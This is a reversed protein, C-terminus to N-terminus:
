IVSAARNPYGSVASARSCCVSGLTRCRLGSGNAMAASRQELALRTSKAASMKRRTCRRLTLGLTSSAAARMSTNELSPSSMCLRMTSWYRKSWPMRGLVYTIEPSSKAQARAPCTLAASSSWSTAELAPSSGLLRCWMPTHVRQTSTAKRVDTRRLWLMLEMAVGLSSPETSKLKRPLSWLDSCRSERSSTRRMARRSSTRRPGPSESAPPLSPPSSAGSYKDCASASSNRSSPGNWSRTSILLSTTFVNRRARKRPHTGVCSSTFMASSHM